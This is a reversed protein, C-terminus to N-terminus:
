RGHRRLTERVKDADPHGLEDLISLAQRWAQHAADIRGAAHHIDGIHTLVGAENYREGGSRCLDLAEQYRILATAHDGLHHHAYGLSDLSAAQVSRNGLERALHLAQECHVLRQLPPGPEIGLEEVLQRRAERYTDLAEAQRGSRYLAVMLHGHLQERYPHARTLSVLEGVVHEHRGLDLEVALWEEQAQIRQETLRPAEADILRGPSVDAYPEGRWLTLAHHLNELACQLEDRARAQRGQVVLESFRLADVKDPEVVLRYGGPRREIHDEGLIQRARHVYVQVNKRGTAATGDFDFAEVLEALGIPDGARCLLLALLRRVATSRIAIPLGERVVTM